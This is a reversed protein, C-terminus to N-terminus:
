VLGDPHTYVNMAAGRAFAALTIGADDAMRIALSTPASIAVLLGIGATATKQVLEYSARSTVLLFGDDLGARARAGLVKDLANHRGVDERVLLGGAHAFAAAHVGGSRANLPQQQALQALAARVDAIPVALREPVRAVPPVAAEMSEIGCAGCGGRGALRRKRAELLDMRAQPIAMDLTIGQASDVRELLRWESANAVIGESLSFGLAFDELDSPTALMVAFALRNYLLAVPTEAIVADAFSQEYEGEFRWTRVDPLVEHPSDAPSAEAARSAPPADLSISDALDDADTTAVFEIDADDDAVTADALDGDEAVAPAAAIEEVVPEAARRAAAGRNSECVQRGQETLWVYPREDEHRVEVLGLGPLGPENGLATLLRRLESQGLALRKAVAPLSMGDYDGLRALLAIAEDEIM